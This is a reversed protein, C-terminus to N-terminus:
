PLSLTEDNPSFMARTSFVQVSFANAVIVIMKSLNLCAFKIDISLQVHGSTTYHYLIVCTDELIKKSTEKLNIFM